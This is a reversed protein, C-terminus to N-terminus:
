GGGMFDEVLVVRLADKGTYQKQAALQVLEEYSRIMQNEVFVLVGPVYSFVFYRAQELNCTIEEGPDNYWTVKLEPSEPM